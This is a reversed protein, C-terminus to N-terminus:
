KPPNKISIQLLTFDDAPNIQGIHRIFNRIRGRSLNYSNPCVTPDSTDILTENIHQTKEMIGLNIEFDGSKVIVNELNVYDTNLVKEYYIIVNADGEAPDLEASDINEDNEVMTIHEFYADKTASVNDDVVYEEEGNKSM